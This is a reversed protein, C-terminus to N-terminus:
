NPPGHSRARRVARAAQDKTAFGGVRMVNVPADDGPGPPRYWHAQFDATGHEEIHGIAYGYPKGSTADIARVLHFKPATM